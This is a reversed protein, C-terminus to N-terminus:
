SVDCDIPMFITEWEDDLSSDLGDDLGGYGDYCFDDVEAALMNYLSLILFAIEQKIEKPYKENITRRERFM